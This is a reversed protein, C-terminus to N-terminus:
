PILGDDQKGNNSINSRTCVTTMIASLLISNVPVQWYPDVHQWWGSLPYFDDRAAAWLQRSSGTITAVACGFLCIAFMSLLTLTVFKSGTAQIYIEILAFGSPPHVVTEIDQIVFM